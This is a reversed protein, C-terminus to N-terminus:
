RVWYFGEEPITVSQAEVAQLGRLYGEVREKCDGAAAYRVGCGVIATQTLLSAKLTTAYNEDELHGSVAAVLTEASATALWAASEKVSELFDETWEAREDLFASKAVLVAQPYGFNGQGDAGYMKQLDGVIHFGKAAQASAAPEAIVFYDAETAAIDAASALAKLNVKEASVEVGQALEQYPIDASKLISKLTLGPVQKIQLVGVTKGQLSQLNEATFSLTDDKSVLFLNGHTVTALLKYREGNGILKSAATVPLVCFDANKSEEENTVKTQVVTPSVVRYAIKDEATDEHLLKAFALAPAGDPMYVSVEGEPVGKQCGGFAGCAATLVSLAALIVTKKKM